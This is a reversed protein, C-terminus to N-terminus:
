HKKLIQKETFTEITKGRNKARELEKPTVLVYNLIPNRDLMEQRQSAEKKAKKLARKIVKVRYCKLTEKLNVHCKTEGFNGGTVYYGKFDGKETWHHGSVPNSKEITHYERRITIPANIKRYRKLM